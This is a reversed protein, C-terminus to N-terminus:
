SESRQVAQVGGPRSANTSRQRKAARYQRCESVVYGPRCDTRATWRRALGQYFAVFAQRRQTSSLGPRELKALIRISLLRRKLLFEEDAESEGTLMLFRDLAAKTAFKQILSHKVDAHSVKIGLSAAEMALWHGTILIELIDDRLTTRQKSCESKLQSSRPEPGAAPKSGSQRLYAICNAYDPPDPIVGKPARQRPNAEHAVVAEIATWRDVTAKTILTDEGIKAVVASSAGGACGVIAAAAVLFVGALLAVGLLLRHVKAM